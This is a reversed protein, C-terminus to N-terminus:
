LRTGRVDVYDVFIGTGSATDQIYQCLLPLIDGARPVNASLTALLAGDVYARAESAADIEIRLEYWTDDAISGVDDFKDGGGAASSQCWFKWGSLTGKELFCWSPGGEEGVGLIFSGESVDRTRFRTEWRLSHGGMLTRASELKAVDSGSSGALYVLGVGGDAASAIPDGGESNTISGGGATTQSWVQSSLNLFDDMWAFSGPRAGAPDNIAKALQELTGQTTGDGLGLSAAMEAIAKRTKNIEDAPWFKDRNPIPGADVKTRGLSHDVLTPIETLGM